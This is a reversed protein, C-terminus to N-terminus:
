IIVNVRSYGISNKLDKNYKTPEIILTIVIVKHPNNKTNEGYEVRCFNRECHAIKQMQHNFIVNFIKM